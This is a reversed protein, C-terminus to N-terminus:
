RGERELKKQKKRMEKVSEKEKAIHELKATIDRALVESEKNESLAKRCIDKVSQIRDAPIPKDLYIDILTKREGIGPYGDEYIDMNFKNVHGSFSFFVTPLSGTKCRQRSELGNTDIAIDLLEHLQQRILETNQM